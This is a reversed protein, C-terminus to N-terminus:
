ANLVKLYAFMQNGLASSVESVDQAWQCGKRTLGQLQENVTVISSGPSLGPGGVDLPDYLNEPRIMMLHRLHEDIENGTQCRLETGASRTM